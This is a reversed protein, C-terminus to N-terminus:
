RSRFDAQIGQYLWNALAQRNDAIVFRRQDKGNQINGLEIFVTPPDTHKVVYLSSRTSVNGLYTRSPQYRKYGASFSRHIAKALKKGAVSNEHHYFFVDITQGKSRSDVHIVVSRQYAGKQHAHLSNVAQTGQRLRATQNRPITQHPYAVEDYDLKLVADDRIGDNPDQVVMYVTAGHEMLVRALRITVDYAYEDEALLASGYRGVAGPDPGGHGSALYYVGGRLQQDKVTVHAYRAGFLSVALGVTTTKTRTAVRKLATPAAKPATSRRRVTVVPRVKRMVLHKGRWHQGNLRVPKRVAGSRFRNTGASPRATFGSRESRCVDRSFACVSAVLGVLLLLAKSWSIVPKHKLQTTMM